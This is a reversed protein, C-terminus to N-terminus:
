GNVDDLHTEPRPLHAIQALQRPTRWHLRLSAAAPLQSPKTKHKQRNRLTFFLSLFLLPCSSSSSSTQRPPTTRGSHKHHSSGNPADPMRSVSRRGPVHRPRASREAGQEQQQDGSSGSRGTLSSTETGVCPAVEPPSGHETQDKNTHRIKIGCLYSFIDQHFTPTGTTFNKYFSFGFHTM